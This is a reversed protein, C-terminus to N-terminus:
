STRWRACVAVGQACGIPSARCSPHRGAQLAPLISCSFCPVIRAVTLLMAIVYAKTACATAPVVTPASSPRKLPLFAATMALGTMLVLALEM